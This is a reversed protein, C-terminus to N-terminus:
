SDATMLREQHSSKLKPIASLLSKTYPHEPGHFLATKLGSEVITGNHMIAIKNAYKKAHRLDHTIFLVACNTKRQMKEILKLVSAATLSDLATTPEDAILLTPELIMAMAIAARQLQGGSLQFPYSAYVREEPLGVLRLAEYVRENRVKKSDGTHAKLMEHFQKGITLFPTFAGKYDQFIYSIEKGLLPRLNNEKITLLNLSNLLITGATITLESPLLRGISAAMVTKGSGSEGAVAMWDGKEIALDLSHIIKQNRHHISLNSIELVNM